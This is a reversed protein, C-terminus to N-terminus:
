WFGDNLFDCVFHESIASSGGNGCSFITNKNLITQNIVNAINELKDIEITEFGNSIEKSYDKLFSTLDNYKKEPFM